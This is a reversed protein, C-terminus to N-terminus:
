ADINTYLSAQIANLVCTVHCLLYDTKGGVGGEREIIQLCLWLQSFPSLEIPVLM